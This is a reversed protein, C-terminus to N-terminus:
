NKSNLLIQVLTLSSRVIIIYLLNDMLMWGTTDFITLISLMIKMFM